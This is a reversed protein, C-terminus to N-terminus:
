RMKTIVCGFKIWNELEKPNMADINITKGYGVIPELRIPQTERYKRIYIRQTAKNIFIGTDGDRPPRRSILLIDNMYYAPHLHNSTIKIGCDIQDGFLRRYHRINVTEINLSDFVMGDEMNGNAIYVSILDNEDVCSPEKESYSHIYDSLQCEILMMTEIAERRRPPLSRFKVLAQLAPSVEDYLDFFLRGTLEYALHAVYIPINVSVGSIMNKYSSLSMELAKAMQSQTYGLHLREKEINIAFNESIQERTM